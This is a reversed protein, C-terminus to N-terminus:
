GPYKQDMIKLIRRRMIEYAPELYPQAATAPHDIEQGPWWERADWERGMKEWFFSVKITQPHRSTGKEVHLAYPAASGWYGQTRSIQVPVISAKLGMPFRPDPKSGEPARARSIEAGEIIAQAITEGAAAACDAAFQGM